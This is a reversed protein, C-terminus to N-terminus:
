EASCICVSKRRGDGRRDNTEKHTCEADRRRMRIDLLIGWCRSEGKRIFWHNMIGNVRLTSRGMHSFMPAVLPSGLFDGM